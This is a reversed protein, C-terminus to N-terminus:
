LKHFYTYGTFIKAFRKLTSTQCAESYAELKSFVLTRFVPSNQIYWPESYTRSRFIDLNQIYWSYAPIIAPYAQNHRPANLDTQIAITKCKGM